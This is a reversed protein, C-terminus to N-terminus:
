TSDIPIQRLKGFYIKGSKIIKIFFSVAITSDHIIGLLVNLQTELLVLSNFHRVKREHVRTLFDALKLFIFAFFAGAFAGFGPILLEYLLNTPNNM